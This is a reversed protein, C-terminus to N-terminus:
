RGVMRDPKKSTGPAHAWRLQDGANRVAYLHMKASMEPASQAEHNSTSKMADGM